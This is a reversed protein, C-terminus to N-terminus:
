FISILYYSYRITPINRYLNDDDEFNPLLLIEDGPNFSFDKFENESMRNSNNYILLSSYQSNINNDSRNTCEIRNSNSDIWIIAEKPTIPLVTISNRTNSLIQYTASIFKM